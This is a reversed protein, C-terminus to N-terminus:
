ITDEPKVELNRNWKYHWDISQQEDSMDVEHAGVFANTVEDLYEPPAVMQFQFEKGPSFGYDVIAAMADVKKFRDMIQVINAVSGKKFTAFVLIYKM